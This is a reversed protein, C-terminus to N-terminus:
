DHSQLHVLASITHLQRASHDMLDAAYKKEAPSNIGTPFVAERISALLRRTSQFDWDKIDQLGLIAHVDRTVSDHAYKRTKDALEVREMDPNSQHDQAAKLHACVSTLYADWKENVSEPVIDHPFHYSVQGEDDYQTIGLIKLANQPDEPAHGLKETYLSLVKNRALEIETFRAEDPLGMESTIFTTYMAVIENM